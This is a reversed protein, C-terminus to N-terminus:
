TYRVHFIILNIFATKTSPLYNTTQPNKLAATALFLSSKGPKDLTIKSLNFPFNRHPYIFFGIRIQVERCYYPM